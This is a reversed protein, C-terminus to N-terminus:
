LPEDIESITLTGVENGGFKCQLPSHLRRLSM